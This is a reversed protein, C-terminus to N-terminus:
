PALRAFVRASSFRAPHPHPGVVHLHPPTHDGTLRAGVRCSSSRHQGWKVAVSTSRPSPTVHSAPPPASRSVGTGVEAPSGPTNTGPSGSMAMQKQLGEQGGQAETAERSTLASSELLNKPLPYGLAVRPVESFGVQTEGQSHLMHKTFTGQTVTEPRTKLVGM